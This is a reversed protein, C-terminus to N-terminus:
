LTIRMGRRRGSPNPVKRFAESQIRQLVTPKHRKLWRLAKTIIYTRRETSRRSCDRHYQYSEQVTM